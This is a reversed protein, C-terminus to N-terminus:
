EFIPPELGLDLARQRLYKLDFGDGNFSIIMPYKILDDFLTQLLDREDLFAKIQPRYGLVDEVEALEAESPTLSLVYQVAQKRYDYTAVAHVQFEAKEPVPFVDRPSRVEIDFAVRPLNVMEQTLLPINEKALDLISAHEGLLREEIEILQSSEHGYDYNAIVTDHISVWTGPTIQQEQFYDLIYNVSQEAVHRQAQKDAQRNRRIGVVDVGVQSILETEGSIM